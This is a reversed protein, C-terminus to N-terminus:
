KNKKNCEDCIGHLKISHETIKFGAESNIIEQIQKIPCPVLVEKSCMDCKLLHKHDDRKLSYGYCGEPLFLKDVIDKDDFLELTRYVTSLNVDNDQEGLLSYIEEATLSKNNEELINLIAMRGKTIKMKKEKLLEEYKM